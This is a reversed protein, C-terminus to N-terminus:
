RTREVKIARQGDVNMFFSGLTGKKIVVAMGKKPSKLLEGSETQRWVAGGDVEIIWRGLPNLSARVVTTELREIDEEKEGRKFLNLSPLSFGFAERRMARSQARDVVVVEGAAEAADLRSVAADYCALREAPDGLAKCDLVQKLLPARDPPSASGAPAAAALIIILSLPGAKGLSTM